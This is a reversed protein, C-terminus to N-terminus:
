SRGPSRRLLSWGAGPRETDGLAVVALATNTASVAVAVRAFRPPVDRRLGGVVASVTDTAHILVALQVARRRREGRATALEVGLLVTRIGFMRWPYAAPGLQAPDDATRRALVQPALLAAAGNGTRIASLALRAATARRV